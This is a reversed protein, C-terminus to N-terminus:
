YSIKLKGSFIYNKPLVAIAKFQIISQGENDIMCTRRFIYDDTNTNPYRRNRYNYVRYSTMMWGYTNRYCRDCNYKGCDDCCDLVDDFDWKFYSGKENRCWIVGDVGENENCYYKKHYEENIINIKDRWLYWGIKILIIDRM